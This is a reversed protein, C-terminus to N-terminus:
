QTLEISLVSFPEGESRERGMGERGQGGVAVVGLRLSDGEVGSVL